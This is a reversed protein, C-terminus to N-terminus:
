PMNHWELLYRSCCPASAPMRVYSPTGLVIVTHPVTCRLTDTPALQTM